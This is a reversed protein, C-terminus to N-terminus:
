VDEIIAVSADDGFRYAGKTCEPLIRTKEGPRLLKQIANIVHYVSQCGENDDKAALLVDAIDDTRVAARPRALNSEALMRLVQGRGSLEEIEREKDGIRRSKQKQLEVARGSVPFRGNKFPGIVVDAAVDVIAKDQKGIRYHILQGDSLRRMRLRWPFRQQVSRNIFDMVEPLDDRKRYIGAYEIGLEEFVKEPRLSFKKQASVILLQAKEQAPQGPEMEGQRRCAASAAHIGKYIATRGTGFPFVLTDLEIDCILLGGPRVIEDLVRVFVAQEAAAEPPLDKYRWVMSRIVPEPFRGLLADVDDNSSAGAACPKTNIRRLEAALPELYPQAMVQIDPFELLMKIANYETDHGPRDLLVITSLGPLEGAADNLARCIEFADDACDEVFVLPRPYPAKDYQLWHRL